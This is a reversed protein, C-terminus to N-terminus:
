IVVDVVLPAHDSVLDPLVHFNRIEVDPSVLMYDAYPDWGPKQWFRCLPTRTTLANYHKVLNIMGRELIALSETDPRLNFDGCIVKPGRHDDMLKRIAHSQAIREPTDTKNDPFWAGHVNGIKFWRQNGLPVALVQLKRATLMVSGTEVAVDPKYVIEEYMTFPIGSKLMIAQSMRSPDDQFAAFGGHYTPGLIRLLERFLNGYVYEDPHKACQVEHTSDHVEQFCYIDAAGEPSRLFRALQYMARGGWTNLSMIRITKM